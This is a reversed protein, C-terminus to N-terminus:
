MGYKYDELEEKMYSRLSPMILPINPLGSLGYLIQGVTRKREYYDDEDLISSRAYNYAGITGTGLSEAMRLAPIMDVMRKGLSIGSIWGSEGFENSATTTKVGTGIGFTNALLAFGAFYPNRNFFANFALDKWGEETLEDVNSFGLTKKLYEKRHEEDMGLSRIHIQAMTTCATLASSILFTNLQALGGEDELRNMMKAFRKNYSQIAFTKFQFVLKLLPNKTEYAFLDNLGKRQITETSVYDTMRRFAYMFRDDQILDKFSERLTFGEGKRQTNEKLVRLMYNYDSKGINVRKLDVDRLFGKYAGEPKYAKNLLESWFCSQVTDIITNNSYRMVLNGPSYDAFIQSLGVVKALYPNTNRYLDENIRMIERVRLLDLMENGVGYDRIFQREQKSFGEGSVKDFFEHVVPLSRAMFKLGYARVANAVEGYNLVGMLTSYAGYTLNRGITSLADVAGFDSDSVGKGITKRFLASAEDNIVKDLGPKRNNAVYKDLAMQHIDDYVEDVEKGFVRKTALMGSTTNFYRSTADMIDMRLDDVKFGTNDAYATNWPMRRKQFNVNSTTSDFSEAGKRSTNQDLYGFASKESEKALWRQFYIEENEKERRLQAKSPKKVVIGQQEKAVDELRKAEKAKAVEEKWIQKFAKYTEPDSYVGNYLNNALLRRANEDGGVRSLFDQIKYRDIIVPVYKSFSYINDILDHTYLKGGREKFAEELTDGIFNLNKDASMRKDLSSVNRGTLRKYLYDNVLDRGYLASADSLKNQIKNILTRDQDRFFRFEEDLTTKGSGLLTTEGEKTPLTVGDKIPLAQNTRTPVDFQSGGKSRIGEEDSGLMRLFQMLDEGEATKSMLRHRVDLWNFFPDIHGERWANARAYFPLTKESILGTLGSLDVDEGKIMKDHNSAVKLASERFSGAGKIALTIGTIGLVDNWVPRDIGTTLEQLQNSAVGTGVNFALAKGFKLVKGGTTVTAVTAGAPPSVATLAMTGLTTAIDVPNGVMQGIGSALGFYWPSESAKLDKQRNEKVLNLNSMVDEISNAGDLVLDVTDKDYNCSEIIKNWESDDKPSYKTFQNGTGVMAKRYAMGIPSIKLGDSFAEAIDLVGEYKSDDTPVPSKEEDQAEKKIPSYNFLPDEMDTLDLSTETVDQEDM